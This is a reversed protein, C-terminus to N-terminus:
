SRGPSVVADRNVWGVRGNSDTVQLWDTKKDIVRLEAGDQATFSNQSSELPGNRVMTDPRIVIVVDSTRSGNWALILCIALVVTAGIIAATLGRLSARWAPRWQMTALLLLSVWVGVMTVMTWENVSLKSLAKQARTPRMTPGQVQNRAFQLNGQVDPDRPSMQEAKRYAAIARGIQGSKFFSNGLNFYLAPSMVGAEVLKEYSSAAATYKGEDYLRNASDFMATTEVPVVAHVNISCITIALLAFVFKPLHFVDLVWCGVDFMWHGANPAQM